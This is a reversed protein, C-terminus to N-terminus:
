ATPSLCGARSSAWLVSSTVGKNKELIEYAIRTVARTIAQEDMVEAKWRPM